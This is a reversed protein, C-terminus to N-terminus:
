QPLGLPAYMTPVRVEMYVLPLLVLMTAVIHQSRSSIRSLQAARTLVAKSCYLINLLLGHKITSRM